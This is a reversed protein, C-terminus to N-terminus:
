PALCLDRHGSPAALWLLARYQYCHLAPLLPTGAVLCCTVSTPLLGWKSSVQAVDCGCLGAEAPASGLGEGTHTNPWVCNHRGVLMGKIGTSLLLSSPPSVATSDQPDSNSVVQALWTEPVEPLPLATPSFGHQAQAEHVKSQGGFRLM